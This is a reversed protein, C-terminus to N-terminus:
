KLSGAMFHPSQATMGADRDIVYATDPKDANIVVLPPKM